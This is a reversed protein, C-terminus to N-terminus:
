KKISVLEVDFVLTESPGIDTGVGRVGYALQPPIVL